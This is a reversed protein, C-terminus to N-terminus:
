GKFNPDNTCVYKAEVVHGFSGKPISFIHEACEGTKYRFYADQVDEETCYAGESRTEYQLIKRSSFKLEAKSCVKDPATLEAFAGGGLNTCTWRQNEDASSCITNNFNNVIRLRWGDDHGNDDINIYVSGYINGTFGERIIEGKQLLIQASAASALAMLAACIM